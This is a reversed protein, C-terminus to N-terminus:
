FSGFGLSVFYHVALKTMGREVALIVQEAVALKVM